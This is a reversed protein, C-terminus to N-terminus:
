RARHREYSDKASRLNGAGTRFTSATALHRSSQCDHQLSKHYCHDGRGSTIVTMSTSLRWGEVSLEASSVWRLRRRHWADLEDVTALRSQYCKWEGNPLLAAFPKKRGTLDLPILNIGAALFAKAHELQERMAPAYEHQLM